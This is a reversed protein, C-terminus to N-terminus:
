KIQLARVCGRAVTAQKAMVVNQQHTLAASQSVPVGGVSSTRALKAAEKSTGGVVMQQGYQVQLQQLKRKRDTEEQDREQQKKLERERRAESLQVPTFPGTAPFRIKLAVKDHSPHQEPRKQKAPKRM